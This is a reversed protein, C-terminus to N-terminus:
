SYLARVSAEAEAPTSTGLTLTIIPALQTVGVGQWMM